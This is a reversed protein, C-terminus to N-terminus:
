YIKSVPFLCDDVMLRDHQQFAMVCRVLVFVTSCLIMLIGVALYTERTLPEAPPTSM